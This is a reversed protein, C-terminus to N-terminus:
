YYEHKPVWGAPRKAEEPLAQYVKVDSELLERLRSYKYPMLCAFERSNRRCRIKFVPADQRFTGKIDKQVSPPLTDKKMRNFRHYTIDFDGVEDDPKDVVLHGGAQEALELLEELLNDEQFRQLIPKENPGTALSQVKLRFAEWHLTIRQQLNLFDQPLNFRQSRSTGLFASSSYEIEASGDLIDSGERFPYSGTWGLSGGMTIVKQRLAEFRMEDSTEDAGILRLTETAEPDSTESPMLGARRLAEELGAVRNEITTLKDEAGVQALQRRETLILSLVEITARLSEANLPLGNSYFNMALREGPGKSTELRFKLEGTGTSRCVSWGMDEALRLLYVLLASVEVDGTINPIDYKTLAEYM